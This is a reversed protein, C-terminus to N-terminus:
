NCTNPSLFETLKCCKTRIIYWKPKSKWKKSSAIAQQQSPPFTPNHITNPSDLFKSSYKSRVVCFCTDIFCFLKFAYSVVSVSWWMRRIMDYFCHWPVHLLSVRHKSLLAPLILLYQMHILSWTKNGVLRLNCQIMGCSHSYHFSALHLCM